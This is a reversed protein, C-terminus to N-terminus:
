GADGYPWVPLRHLGYVISARRFTLDQPDVALRLRPFRRVLEPYAVRLEMRALEAGVCRHIGHGFALHSVPSRAPDLSEPATTLSPDRNAGALSVVVMDGSAISIGDVVTDHRAFRPFAVQVVSLYRLAEEVFPVVADDHHRLGDFAGDDRLLALAGLAIMSATTEFGGTLVGDALGALEEDSVEHGHSRIIMGILGDDPEERQRHVVTRLYALSDSIANLSHTAGIDVDFRNM